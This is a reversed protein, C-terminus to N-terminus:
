RSKCSKSLVLIFMRKRHLGQQAVTGGRVRRFILNGGNSHQLEM